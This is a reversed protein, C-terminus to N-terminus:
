EFVGARVELSLAKGAETLKDLAAQTKTAVETVNEAAAFAQGIRQELRVVQGGVLATAVVSVTVFPSAYRRRVTVRLIKRDVTERDRALEELFEDPDNFAITIPSPDQSM